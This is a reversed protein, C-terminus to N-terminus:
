EKKYTLNYKIDIQDRVTLFFMTPPKMGFSTLKISFDGNLKIINNVQDISLKSIIDKKVGNLNLSAKLIYSNVEKKIEKITVTIKTKNKSSVLEYMHQDRDKNDSRLSLFDITIDGKISELSDDITLTSEIMNTSPDIKNDGFVKTHAQIEGQTLILQSAFINIGLLMVILFKYM